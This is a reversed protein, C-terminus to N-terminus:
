HVQSTAHTVAADELGAERLLELAEQLEDRSPQPSKHEIVDTFLKLHRGLLEAGKQRDYLELEIKQEDIPADESGMRRNTIKIKKIAAVKQPRMAMIDRVVLNGNADTDLFDQMNTFTTEAINQLVTDADIELRQSRQDLLWAIVVQVNPNHKLLQSCTSEATGKAYGARIGSQKINTDLPYELCFFAQRETLEQWATRVNIPARKLQDPIQNAM